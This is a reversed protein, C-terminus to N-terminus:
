EDGVGSQIVLDGRAVTRLKSSLTVEADWIYLDSLESTDSPTLSVTFQKHRVFVVIVVTVAKSQCRLLSVFGMLRHALVAM